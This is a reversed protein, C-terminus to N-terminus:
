IRGRFAGHTLAAGLFLCLLSTIVLFSSLGQCRGCLGALLHPKVVALPLFGLGRVLLAIGVLGLVPRLLPLRRVIGAGSFAYAALGGLLAAIVVCTIAPRLSGAEVMAVLGAPAGFYEYWDSGGLPIALHLLAGSLLLVGSALLWGNRVKSL